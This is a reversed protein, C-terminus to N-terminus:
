IGRGRRDRREISWVSLQFAVGLAALVLFLTKEVHPSYHLGQVVLSAGVCASLVILAWDFLAFALVAGLIGGILYPLWLLRETQGAFLTLLHIVLYSGAAFGALVVALQQFFVAVVAGLVGTALALLLVMLRSGVPWLLPGFHFGAAFGILGVFLWFLKRGTTLVALGVFIDLVSNEM